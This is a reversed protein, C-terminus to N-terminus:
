YLAYLFAILHYTRQPLELKEQWLVRRELPMLSAVPLILDLGVRKTLDIEVGGPVAAAAKTMVDYRLGKASSFECAAASPHAEVVESAAVNRRGWM